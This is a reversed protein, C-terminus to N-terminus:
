EMLNVVEYGKSELWNIATELELFGDLRDDSGIQEEIEADQFIGARETIFKLSITSWRYKIYGPKDDITCHWIMPCGSCSEETIIVKM